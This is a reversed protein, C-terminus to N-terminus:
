SHALVAAAQAAAVEAAEALNVRDAAYDAPTVVLRISLAACAAAVADAAMASSTCEVVVDAGAVIAEANAADLDAPFPLVLVEPNILGLKAVLADAKNANTDPTFRLPHRQSEEVFAGDVLSLQSVGTSALLAAVLSGRAGCGVIAVNM